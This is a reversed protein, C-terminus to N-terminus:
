AVIGTEYIVTDASRTATLWQHRPKPATSLHTWQGFELICQDIPWGEAAANNQLWNAFVAPRMGVVKIDAALGNMHASNKSGGIAQNLWDPRLGSTIVIPRALKVRVPELLKQCLFKLNALQADTPQIERGLRAATESATFEHLWFHDSLQTM